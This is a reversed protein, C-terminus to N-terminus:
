RSFLDKSRQRVLPRSSAKESFEYELGRIIACPIMQKDQGIVLEAASALEDGTAVTKVKLKYGFADKKGRLDRIPEIGSVGILQDIDGRRFPRGSTDSVIIAVKKGTAEAIEKRIDEASADPEKPLLVVSDGGDVNSIDVGSYSYIWGHRTETILHGKIQKVVSKADRLALEVIAPDNHSQRSILKAIRSPKISSTKVVRGEAKSIIKHTVVIIDNDKIGIKQKKAADLILKGVRDGTKVEPIGKVPLIEIKRM